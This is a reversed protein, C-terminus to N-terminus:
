VSGRGSSVLVVGGVVLATGVLQWVSMPEDLIWWGLAITLIPGITGILSAKSSGIRRIAASLAFAPAVTSLAAMGLAYGYITPPLVLASLPQTAIFHTLTAATAVLMALATFRATGLRRIMPGSGTLYVSYTVASGFVFAGGIVVSGAVSALSLDHAFAAAVGLYCLALAGLARRGVKQGLFLANLLVTLAPYTFLILRELGASVYKLGVFDLMSAGYYGLIGLTVMAAWDRSSLPEAGRTERLGVWAFVPLAFAMRLTVLTVAEVPAIAYALKVLIAKASFGLAAGIALVVGHGDM